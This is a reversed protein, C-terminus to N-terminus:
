AFGRLRSSPRPTAPELRQAGADRRSILEKNPSQSPFFERLPASLSPASAKKRDQRRQTKLSAPTLRDRGTELIIPNAMAMNGAKM